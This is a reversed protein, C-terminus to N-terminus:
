VEYLGQVGSKMKHEWGGRSGNESGMIFPCAPSVIGINGNVSDQPWVASPLELGPRWDQASDEEWIVQGGGCRKRTRSLLPFSIVKSKPVREQNLFHSEEQQVVTYSIAIMTGECTSLLPQGVNPPKWM